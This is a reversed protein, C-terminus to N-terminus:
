DLRVDSGTTQDATTWGVEQLAYNAGVTLLVLAVCALVFARM